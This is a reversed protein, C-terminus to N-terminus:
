KISLYGKFCNWQFISITDKFGARKLLGRNGFDSFPELIGKLSRSKNIIEKETFKNGLKYENYVQQFIDQFRADSARIKEFMIFAGGWNLSKYIKNIIEQRYEPSIFQITYYSLIFNSKKLKTKKIDKNIYKIKKNLNEKKAQSIMEKVTEIGYYEINKNKHRNQLKNLLTGTSSGIDYVVSNNKLFFDSIESILNHGNEYFPVSQKIHKTFKKPVKKGFSWSANKALIKSSM